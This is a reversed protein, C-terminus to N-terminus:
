GRAHVHALCQELLEHVEEASTFRDGPSKAHLLAVIGELWAPIAPNIERISRPDNDTIQRLIGYSTEARFRPPRNCARGYRWGFCSRGTFRRWSM